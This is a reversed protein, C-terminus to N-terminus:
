RLRCGTITWPLQGLWNQWYAMFPLSAVRHLLIVPNALSQSPMPSQTTEEV